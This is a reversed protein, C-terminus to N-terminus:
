SIVPLAGSQGVYCSGNNRPDEKIADLFGEVSAQNVKTKLEVKKAM